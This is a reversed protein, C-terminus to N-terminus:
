LELEEERKEIQKAYSWGSLVCLFLILWFGAYYGLWWLLILLPIDIFSETLRNRRIALLYKFKMEEKNM